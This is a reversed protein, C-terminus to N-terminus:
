LTVTFGKLMVETRGDPNTVRVDWQRNRKPGGKGITFAATIINADVVVVNSVKPAPGNGNEFIVKAGSRFGSGAIRVDVSTGARATNPNISTVTVGATDDDTNTVSVDAPNLGSYDLGTSVAAATVITYAVDGDVVADDAGTVTVTQALNWNATTFTLSTPSVTGETTDSSSLGITADATPHIDLVVTFAAAGGAETTVLGATPSVTVGAADDDTNTVSVDTSNLGSYDLDTSGAAATLITYAIDGDVLADDVGTVTVTQLTSWDAPTFTLSTPSVTGETTDSSSLGITADATPHIDLVVTFAAAGGAETTVLGATPSVTVGAADDDTNTVSVDTSNLGSYDLDTSGAAATVITYAVDGDDVSDNVGSVTVMQALNWNAPTFTLSAPAVTGETTDSSSLGITVETTPESDLVVTFTATGGAETTVLGSTPVVTIGAADDTNTVSVDAPNLGSYGLDTSVAAATVITFAVDGDVLTDNVGSVTVTQALNWNAPTFTLSTPSVTGETPDGSSLGITVDTTPESNLIVTFTATGGAETTVLGSIPSVTVGPPLSYVVTLKPRETIVSYESSRTDVGDSGTPLFIWGRNLLPDVSWKALSVTVDISHPGISSGTASLGLPGYEDAQIGPEGGFTNYAGSEPWDVLIEYADAPNGPDYIVYTLTASNIAAGPPIQGPGSGFINDFRILAFKPLNNADSAITDWELSQLAGFSTDPDGEKIHTDVTGTYGAAGEQFTVMTEGGTAQTTASAVNSYDSGGGSNYARVRYFYTTSSTLATDSYTTADVAVTAIETWGTAGDLSLEIRFGLEDNSNDTWILDIQSPSVATASLGSPAAPTKAPPDFDFEYAGLDPALGSYDVVPIDLVLEDNHSYQAIGVDIAPSGPLLTFDPALLPDAFWTTSLDMNSDQYELGNNWYMSHAVISDGDIGKLALTTHEAFINNLAILNDGGTVGYPNNVFSNNFLHIREPISAARFDEITDGKDMLGLGVMVNNEILNHEILFDRGSLDEYDILQIGDEGNSSIINNRIVINLTPGSYTHLRIEIGDDGNNRIINDEIIAATAGDLDIGDDSNEEFTNGRAIGGGGEYDVGDSNWRIRNNLIEIPVSPRIGDVASQITFGIIQTGDAGSGVTIGGEVITSDIFSLDDTTYFESAMTIAKGTIQLSQNYTGTSVLILDGSQAADIAPQISPYDQPVRLPATTGTIEDLKWHVVSTPDGTQAFSSNDAGGSWSIVVFAAVFGRILKM